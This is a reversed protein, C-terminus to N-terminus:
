PYELRMTMKQPLFIPWSWPQADLDPKWPLVQLQGDSAGALGFAHQLAAIKRQLRAPQDDDVAITLRARPHQRLLAAIKLVPQPLSDPSSSKLSADPEFGIQSGWRQVQQKM